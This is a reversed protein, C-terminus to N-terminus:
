IKDALEQIHSLGIIEIKKNEGAMEAAAKKPVYARTIGIRVAEKIRLAAQPISRIEGGL